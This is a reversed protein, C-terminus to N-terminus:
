DYKYRVKSQLYNFILLFLYILIFSVIFIVLYFQYTFIFYHNFLILTTELFYYQPLLLHLFNFSYNMLSLFLGIVGICGITSFLSKKIITCIYIAILSIFMIALGKIIIEVICYALISINLPIWQFTPISYIPNNLGDLGVLSYFSIFDLIRFYFCIVVSLLISTMTKATYLHTRGKITSKLTLIMENENDMTMIRTTIIVAFIISLMSSFQYNFYNEFSDTEYYADIVRSSYIRELIDGKNNNKGTIEQNEKNTKLFKDINNTYNINYFIGDYFHQYLNNDGFVYGTYTDPNLRDTSYNNNLVLENTAELGKVIKSAKEKTINGKIESYLKDYGQRYLEGTGDVSQYIIKAVNIISFFILLILLFKSLIKKIEFTILQKM